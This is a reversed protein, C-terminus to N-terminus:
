PLDGFFKRDFCGLFRSALNAGLLIVRFFILGRPIRRGAEYNRYSQARIGLRQALEKADTESARAAGPHTAAGDGCHAQPYGGKDTRHKSRRSDANM